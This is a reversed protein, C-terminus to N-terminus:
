SKGANIVQMLDIKIQITEKMNLITVYLTQIIQIEFIKKM